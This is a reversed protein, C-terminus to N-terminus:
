GALTAKLSSELCSQNSAWISTAKPFLLTLSFSMLFATSDPPVYISSDSPESPIRGALLFLFGKPDGLRMKLQDIFHRFFLIVLLDQALNSHLLFLQSRKGCYRMGPRRCLKLGLQPM